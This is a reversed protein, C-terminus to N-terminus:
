AVTVVYAGVLFSMADVFHFQFPLYIDPLQAFHIRPRRCSVTVSKAALPPRRPAPAPVSPRPGRCSSYHGSSQKDVITNYCSRRAFAHGIQSRISNLELRRRKQSPASDTRPSSAAIVSARSSRPSPCGTHYLCPRLPSLPVRLYVLGSSQIFFIM